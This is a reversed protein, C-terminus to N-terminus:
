IKDPLKRPTLGGTILSTMFNIIKRLDSTPGRHSTDKSRRLRRSTYRRIFRSILNERIRKKSM